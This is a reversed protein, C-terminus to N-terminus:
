RGKYRALVAYNNSAGFLRLTAHLTRASISKSGHTPRWDIVDFGAQELFRRVNRPDYRRFRNPKGLMTWVWGTRLNVFDLFVLGGPKLYTGLRTIVANMDLAKEYLIDHLIILDFSAPAFEQTMIDAQLFRTTKLHGDQQFLTYFPAFEPTYDLATIMQGQMAEIFIETAFPGSGVNLVHLDKSKLHRDFMAALTHLRQTGAFFDAFQAFSPPLNEALIREYRQVYGLNHLGPAESSM